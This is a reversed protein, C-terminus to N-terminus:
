DAGYPDWSDDTGGQIKGMWGTPATFIPAEFHAEARQPAAVPAAFTLALADAIDPSSLGRKRMEAKSELKFKTLKGSAKYEFNPAVLEQRLQIDDPICGSRKIWEAMRWYMESRRDQFRSDLPSGGFDIALVPIGLQRLRDIAGGGVGTQDIFLAAPNKTVFEQAVQDALQMLDMQRWVRPRWVMDGQRQCLVSADDGYRAVDLGFILPQYKYEEAPLRQAAAMAHEPGILKNAQTSPFEGLINVKVFDSDLGWTDIQAQAWEKDVRPTRNPDDPRSSIKYIWWRAQDRHSIRYLPGETSTPNGALVVRGDPPCGDVLSSLIAEAAVIVGDPYDGVEDALVIPHRGHLGALTNAQQTKDANQPFSRASLWWTKAFQKAEIREGRHTFFHQLVPSREQIRALEAWLNDRLNDGTISLAIGNAHWRTLLWWWGVVALAFSKGPGKCALLALMRRANEEVHPGSVAGWFKEQWVDGTVRCVDHAFIRCDARWVKAQSDAVKAKERDHRSFALPEEDAELRSKREERPSTRRKVWERAM